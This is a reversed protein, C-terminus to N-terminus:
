SLLSLRAQGLLARLASVTMPSLAARNAERLVTDDPRTARAAGTVTRFIAVTAPDATDGGPRAAIEEHLLDLRRRIILDRASTSPAASIGIALLSAFLELVALDGDGVAFGADSGISLVGGSTAPPGVCVCLYAENECGSRKTWWPHASLESTAAGTGTAWVRGALGEDLMFPHHAYAEPLARSRYVRLERPHEDGPRLWAAYVDDARHAFHEHAMAVVNALWIEARARDEELVRLGAAGTRLSGLESMAIRVLDARASSSTPAELPGTQQIAKRITRAAPAIASRLTGDPQDRWTAATVGGLDSPIKLSSHEEFAFFVRGEGLRGLFLGLELLVNDRPGFGTMQRSTVADDPTFILLAFSFESSLKLLDRLVTGGPLFLDQDWVAPQTYRDLALQFEEAVDRGESSSGIFLRPRTPDKPM